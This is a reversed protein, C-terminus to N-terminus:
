LPLILVTSRRTSVLEPLISKRSFYINRKELVFWRLSSTLQVSGEGETFTGLKRTGRAKGVNPGGIAIAM